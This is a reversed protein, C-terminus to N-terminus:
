YYIREPNNLDWANCTRVDHAIRKETIPRKPAFYNNGTGIAIGTRLAYDIYPQYQQDQEHADIGM